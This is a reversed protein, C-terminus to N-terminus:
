GLANTAEPRRLYLRRGAREDVRRRRMTAGLAAFGVLLMAWSAPEPVAASIGGLRFQGISAIQTGAGATIEVSTIPTSADAIIGFFNQGSSDVDATLPNLSGTFADILAGGVGFASITVPGAVSALINFEAELFTAGSELSFILSELGDSDLPEIRAQGQPPSLVPEGALFLVSSNTHNTTGRLVNDGPTVDVDLQVNEDPQVVDPGAEIVVAASASPAYAMLAAAAAMGVALNKM